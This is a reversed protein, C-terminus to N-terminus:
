RIVFQARRNIRYAAETPAPDLPKEEGYSVTSLRSGSVGLDVLYNRAAKARREGLALNYVTTGREDCHGEITVTDAPNAQLWAAKERLLGKAQETLEASDYDFLINQNLFNSKAEIIQAQREDELQQAKIREAELRAQREAELRAARQADTETQSQNVTGPDAVKPKSCGVMTVLGVVLVAMVVNMFMQKKM